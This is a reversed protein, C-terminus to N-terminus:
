SRSTPRRTILYRLSTQRCTITTSMRISSCSISTTTRLLGFSTANPNQRGLALEAEFRQEIAVLRLEDLREIATRAFSEYALDALPAGRWLGLAHRLLEVASQPEGCELARDADHTAREFRDLDLREPEVHLVYGPSSTEIAAAAGIAKRLESVQRQVQTVATVPPAGAYLDDALREVGVVRNAHLLLIALTARQKTGGLRV